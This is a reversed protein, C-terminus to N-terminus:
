KAASLISNNLAQLAEISKEKNSAKMADQLKDVNDEIANYTDSSKAKVGDEVKSWAGEFKDFEDRAKAFDNAEVAQQTKSVVATLDGFGKGADASTAEKDTENKTESSASQPTTAKEATAEGAASPPTTVETASATATPITEATPPEAKNCGTLVLLSIALIGITYKFSNM